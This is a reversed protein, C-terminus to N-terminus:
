SGFRADKDYADEGRHDVITGKDPAGLVEVLYGVLQVWWLYETPHAL